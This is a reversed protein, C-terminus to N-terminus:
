SLFSGGKHAQGRLSSVLLGLLEALCLRCHNHGCVVSAHVEVTFFSGLETLREKM